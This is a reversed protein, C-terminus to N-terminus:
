KKLSEITLFYATHSGDPTEFLASLEHIGEPLEAKLVLSPQTPDAIGEAIKEGNLLLKGASIELARAPTTRFAESTGPVEAGIPASANLALKTYLPYRSLTFNYEGAEAVKLQWYAAGDENIGTLKGERIHQQNWAVSATGGTGVLDHSTLELPRPNNGLHFPAGEAFSDKMSSWWNEYSQRMAKVREPYKSAVNKKQGPDKSIQYLKKGNLLRWDRNM